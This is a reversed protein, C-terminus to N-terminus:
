VVSKRDQVWDLFAPLKEYISDLLNILMPIVILLLIVIVSLGLFMVLMAALSRSLKLSHLKVVLPNLIYALVGAAAFPMLIPKLGIFLSITALLVLGGIIWPAIGSSTKSNMNM